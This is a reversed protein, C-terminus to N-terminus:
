EKVFRYANAKEASKVQIFYIGTTLKSSDFVLTKGGTNAITQIRKGFADQVFIETAPSTLGSLDITLLNTVPNPSISIQGKKELEANGTVVGTFALGDIYLYSTSVPTAGSASFTIICSDPFEPSSYVVPMTFSGWSMVMGPLLKKGKGVTDRKNLTSNWKTLCISMFGQDAGTAMYQWKGALATPRADYAFGSVPQHTIPDITGSVAIGPVVGMGTVSKSILKLYSTGPSGPTGKMCTYTSASTTMGNMNDWGTPTNFGGTNSWTEFGANPIQATATSALLVLIAFISRKKM